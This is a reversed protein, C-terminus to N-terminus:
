NSCSEIWRQAVGGRDEGIVVDVAIGALEEEVHPVLVVGEELAEDAAAPQGAAAEVVLVKGGALHFEGVGVALDVAVAEDVARDVIPWRRARMLRGEVVDRRAREDAEIEPLLVRETVADAAIAVIDVIDIARVAVHDHGIEVLTMPLSSFQADSRSPPSSRMVNQFPQGQDAVGRM